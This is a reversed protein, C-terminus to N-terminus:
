RPLPTGHGGRPGKADVDNCGDSSFLNKPASRLGFPLAKDIYVTEEWSVALLRRDSPHAPVARYAQRLDLKALLCGKGLTRVFQM